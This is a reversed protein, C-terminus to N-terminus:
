RPLPLSNMMAGAIQAHTITGEFRFPVGVHLLSGGMDLTGDVTYPVSGSSAALQAVLGVDSWKMTVPVDLKTTKGAPLTITRPLTMTGVDHKEVVLHASVDSASLDVDNPNTASMSLDLAIGALDIRTVVVKEPVITPPSPKSCGSLAAIAVAVRLLARM